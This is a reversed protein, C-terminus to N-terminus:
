WLKTVPSFRSIASEADEIARVWRSWDDPLGTQEFANLGAKAENKLESAARTVADVSTRTRSLPSERSATEIVKELKKSKTSLRRKLREYTKQNFEM